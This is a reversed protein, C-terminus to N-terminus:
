TLSPRGRAATAMRTGGGSAPYAVQVQPPLQRTPPHPATYPLDSRRKGSESRCSCQPCRAARPYASKDQGLQSYQYSRPCRRLSWPLYLTAWFRGVRYSDPRPIPYTLGSKGQLQGSPYQPRYRRPTPYSPDLRGQLM